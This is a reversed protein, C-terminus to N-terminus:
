RASWRNHPAWELVEGAPLKLADVLGSPLPQWTAFELDPFRHHLIRQAKSKDAEVVTFLRIRGKDSVWFEIAGSTEM